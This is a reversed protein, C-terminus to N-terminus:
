LYFLNYVCQVAGQLYDHEASEKQESNRM